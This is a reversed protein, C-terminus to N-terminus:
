LLNFYDIKFHFSTKAFYFSTDDALVYLNVNEQIFVRVYAVCMVIFWLHSASVSRQMACERTAGSYKVM